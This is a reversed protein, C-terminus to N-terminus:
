LPWKQKGDFKQQFPQSSTHANLGLMVSTGTSCDHIKEYNIGAKVACPEPTELCKAFPFWVNQDPNLHIACSLIRNLDCEQQGHQCIIGDQM